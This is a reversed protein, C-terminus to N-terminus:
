VMAIFWTSSVGAFALGISAAACSTCGTTVGGSRVSFETDSLLPVDLMKKTLSSPFIVSVPSRAVPFFKPGPPVSEPLPPVSEPPLPGSGTSTGGWSESTGMSGGFTSVGNTISVITGSRGFTTRPVAGAPNIGSRPAVALAVAPSVMWVRGTALPARGRM